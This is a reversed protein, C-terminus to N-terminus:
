PNCPANASAPPARREPTSHGAARRPRDGGPRDADGRRAPLVALATATQSTRILYDQTEAPLSLFAYERGGGRGARPQSKWHDRKAKENINQVTRPM